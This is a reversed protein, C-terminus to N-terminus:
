FKMGAEAVMKKDEEIGSGLTTLMDGMIAGNIGVHMAKMQLERSMLARGGAFRIVAHPHAFRLLAVATLIEEDTLPQMDALPTGPIPILINLPISVPRVRRLAVAFEARQRETEGMGIIGGSCVEMGTERALEMTRIKDEQSHTSCLTVFHSPASELNCHYRRVGADHLKQMDERGLLGMSACLGLNGGENIERIYSCLTDLSKGGLARGSTVFSFRRIGHHRNVDALQVCTDHDVLPYTMLMTDYHASQACWKCDEPCKGSRANIISCSDFDATHFHATIEAAAGHLANKDEVEVLSMVEDDTLEGGELVKAKLSQLDAM